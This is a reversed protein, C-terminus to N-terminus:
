KHDRTKFYDQPLRHEKADLFVIRKLIELVVESTFESKPVFLSNDSHLIEGFKGKKMDKFERRFAEMTFDGVGVDFYPSSEGFTKEPLINFTIDKYDLEYETKPGYPINTHNGRSIIIGNFDTRISEREYVERPRSYNIAELKLVSSLYGDKRREKPIQIGSSNTWSEPGTVICGPEVVMRYHRYKLGTREATLEVCPWNIFPYSDKQDGRLFTVTGEGWVEDRILNLLREADISDLLERGQKLRDELENKRQIAENLSNEYAKREEDRRAQIDEQSEENYPRQMRGKDAIEKFNGM